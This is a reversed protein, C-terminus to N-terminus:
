TTIRVWAKDGWVYLAAYLPETFTTNFTQLRRMPEGLEYFTLEGAEYDLYIRFKRSVIEYPLNIDKGRHRVSHKNNFKRLCWSKNNDGIASESGERPISPYTMGFRWGGSESTLVEWFHIGSSLSRRSLVQCKLFRQPTDPRDQEEKSLTTGKLDASIELNNAATNLDLTLETAKQPRLRDQVISMIDSLGVLLTESIVDQDLDGVSNVEEECGDGGVEGEAYYYDSLQKQLVTVIDAEKSLEEVNRIKQSLERKNRELQEILNCVPFSLKEGQRIIEGQVRRELIDLQRRIVDFLLGLREREDTIKRQTERKPQQLRRLTEEIESKKLTLIELVNRVEMTKKQFAEGITETQHQRHQEKLCTVCICVSDLTCFYKLTEKHISCKTNELSESLDMLIHEPSPSHVQLHHDCMSSECHLCFKNAPVSCYTCSKLDKKPTQDSLFREAINQLTINRCLASRDHFEERCQPCSFCGSAEQKDLVPDICTRCYNHGCTLIVPNRFIELCISCYLEEVLDASAM